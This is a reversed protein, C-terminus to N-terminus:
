ERRLIVINTDISLGVSQTKRGVRTSKTGDSMGTGGFLLVAFPLMVRVRGLKTSTGAFEVGTIYRCV